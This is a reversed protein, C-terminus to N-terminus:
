ATFSRTIAFRLRNDVADAAKAAAEKVRRASTRNSADKLAHGLAWLESDQGTEARIATDLAQLAQAATVEGCHSLRADSDTDADCCNRVFSRVLGTVGDMGADSRTALSVGLAFLLAYRALERANTEEVWEAEVEDMEETTSRVKPGAGVLASVEAAVAGAFGQRQRDVGYVLDAAGDFASGTVASHVFGAASARLPVGSIAAAIAFAREEPSVRQMVAEISTLAVLEDTDIASPPARPSSHKRGFESESDSGGETPFPTVEESSVSGSWVHSLDDEAGTAAALVPAEAYGYEPYYATPATTPAVPPYYVPADPNLHTSSGVYDVVPEDDAWSCPTHCRSSSLRQSSPSKPAPARSRRTAEAEEDEEEDDDLPLCTSPDEPHDSVTQPEAPNWASPNFGIRETECYQHDWNGYAWRSPEEQQWSPGSGYGGMVPMPQAVATCMAAMALHAMARPSHFERRRRSQPSRPAAVAAEKDDSKKYYAHARPPSSTVPDFGDSSLPSGDLPVPGREQYGIGQMMANEKIIAINEKHRTGQAHIEYQAYSNCTVNCEACHFKQAKINSKIKSKDVHEPRAPAEGTWQFGQEESLFEALRNPHVWHCIQEWKDSFENCMNHWRARECPQDKSVAVLLQIFDEECRTVDEPFSNGRRSPRYAKRLLRGSFMEAAKSFDANASVM